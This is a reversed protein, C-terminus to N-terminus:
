RVIARQRVYPCLLNKGCDCDIADATVTFETGYARVVLLGTRAYSKGARTVERGTIDGRTRADRLYRAATVPDIEFTTTM